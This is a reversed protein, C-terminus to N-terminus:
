KQAPTEKEWDRGLDSASWRSSANLRISYELADNGLVMQTKHRNETTPGKGGSKTWYIWTDFYPRDRDETIDPRLRIIENPSPIKSPTATTPIAENLQTLFDKPKLTQGTGAGTNLVAALESYFDGFYPTIWYGPKVQFLFFRPNLGRSTLSLTFNPKDRTSFLCDFSVAGTRVQFQQMDSGISIMSRHLAALSTMQM